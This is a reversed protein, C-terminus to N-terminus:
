DRELYIFDRDFSRLHAGGDVFITQGTVAGAAALYRVADAVEGPMPLRALPMTAGIRDLQAEGYAPTPLTLGPAVANIRVMPAFARAMAETMGALALKSATYAAQDRPPAVIRQDLINIVVGREGAALGSRLQQALRAPAAANVAFHAAFSAMTADDWRDDAFLSASNVLCDPARGFRRVVEPWLADVQDAETLDAVVLEARVGAREIAEALAPEPQCPAHCHLALDYGDAALGAAIAAGLRRTGGTVLALM